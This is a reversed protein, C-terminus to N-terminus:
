KQFKDDYINKKPTQTVRVYAYEPTKYGQGYILFEIIKKAFAKVFLKNM